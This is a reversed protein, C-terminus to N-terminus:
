SAVCTEHAGYEEYLAESSTERQWIPNGSEQRKEGRIM